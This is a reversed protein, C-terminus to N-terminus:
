DAEQGEVTAAPPSIVAPSNPETRLDHFYLDHIEAEDFAKFVRARTERLVKLGADNLKGDQKSLKKLGVRDAEAAAIRITEARAARNVADDIESETVRAPVDLKYYYPPRRELKVLAHWGPREDEITPYTTRVAKWLMDDYEQESTTKPVIRQRRKKMAEKGKGVLKGAEALTRDFYTTMALEDLKMKEGTEGAEKRRRIEAMRADKEQQRKPRSVTTRKVTNFHQGVLNGHRDQRVVPQGVCWNYFDDPHDFRFVERERKYDDIEKNFLDELWRMESATPLEAPVFDEEAIQTKAAAGGRGGPIKPVLRGHINPDGRGEIRWGVDERPRPPESFCDEGPTRHEPTGDAVEIMTWKSLGAPRMFTYGADIITIWSPTKNPGPVNEARQPKPKIFIPTQRKHNPDKVKNHQKSFKSTWDALLVDANEPVDRVWDAAVMPEDVFWPLGEFLPDLAHRYGGAGTAVSLHRADVNSDLWDRFVASSQWNRLAGDTIAARNDRRAIYNAHAIRIIPELLRAGRFWVLNEATPRGVELQVPIDTARQDHETSVQGEDLVIPSVMGAKQAANDTWTLAGV